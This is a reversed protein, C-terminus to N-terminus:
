KGSYDVLKTIFNLLCCADKINQENRQIISKIKKKIKM